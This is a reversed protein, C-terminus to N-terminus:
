VKGGNTWIIWNMATSLHYSRNGIMKIISEIYDVKSKQNDKKIHSVILDNDADLWIGLDEKLVRKPKTKQLESTDWGQRDIEEVSLDGKYYERKLKFLKKHQHQCAELVRVEGLYIRYYKEHLSSIKSSENDIELMNIKGDKKWLETIEETKM